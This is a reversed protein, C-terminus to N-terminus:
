VEGEVTMLIEYLTSSVTEGDWVGVLVSSPTVGEGEEVSLLLFLLVSVGEGANKLLLLVVSMALGTVGEVRLILSLLKLDGVILSLTHTSVSASFVVLVVAAGLLGM